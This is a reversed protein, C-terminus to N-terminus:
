QIRIGEHGKNCISGGSKIHDQRQREEEFTAWEAKGDKTRRDVQPAIIISQDYKDPELIATHIATGIVMAKTPEENAAHYWEHFHAPSKALQVIGSKNLANQEHYDENSLDYVGPETIKKM